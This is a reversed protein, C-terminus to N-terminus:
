NRPHQNKPRGPGTSSAPKTGAPKTTTGAAPATPKAGSNTTSPTVSKDSAVAPTGNGSNSAPTAAPTSAPLTTIPTPEPPLPKTLISAVMENMGAPSDNHRYKYWTTLSETWQAKQAQYAADGGAAAVARAYADIMRDVIQNVNALALKSEPTEDKGKYLRTYEEFQKAYSGNEYAAAIYAYPLPSKKLQTESQAAKILYSLAGSPDSELTLTGITYNLYASAEDAGKFPQWNDVTKGSGLLQLAKKAYNLADPTLSKDKAILYGNAGLDVMVKVNEPEDTLIERGLAYAEPYKHDTYLLQALKGPRIAKEYAGVWKKLYKSQDTDEQTCAIYKKAVDYAKAQQDTKYTEIFTKYWADKNEQTCQDQSLWTTNALASFALMTVTASVMVLRIMTKM